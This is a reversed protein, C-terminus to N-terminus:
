EQLWPVRGVAHGKGALTLDPNEEPRFLIWFFM